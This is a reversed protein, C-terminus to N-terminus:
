IKFQVILSVLFQSREGPLDSEKEQKLENDARSKRRRNRTTSHALLHGNNKSIKRLAKVLIPELRTVLEDDADASDSGDSDSSDDSDSDSQERAGTHRSNRASSRPPPAHQARSSDDSSEHIPEATLLTRGSFRPHTKRLSNISQSLGGSTNKQKSNGTQRENGTSTAAPGGSTNKQKSNGTQREDGTPTAAPRGSTNKQKSNGTQREGTTSAAPEQPEPHSTQDNTPASVM